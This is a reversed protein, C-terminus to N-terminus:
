VLVPEETAQDDSKFESLWFPPTFYMRVNHPTKMKIRCDREMIRSFVKGIQASTLHRFEYLARIDSTKRWGWKELPADWMLKEMIELEGPLPKNFQENHKELRKREEDTLRFGQPNQLYLTEYVQIWLQQFWAEDLEKLREVDISEPQVVWYRRSGTEDNLFEKPNVTACFSTRRPKNVAVKAYPQRYTDKSSTLFAKLASQERKLTSDLEGLETIWKGTAQIVSDKNDLDITVGEAFWDARM